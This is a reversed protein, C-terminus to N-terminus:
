RRARRVKAMHRKASASGKIMWPQKKGRRKGKRRSKHLRRIRKVGFISGAKIVKKWQPRASKKLHRTIWLISAPCLCIRNAM